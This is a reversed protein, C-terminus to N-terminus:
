SRELRKVKVFKGTEISEKAALCTYVSELGAWISADSKRKGKIIGIFNHALEMDGGFHSAGMDGKIVDSFPAHHRVYKIDHRYFDFSLTGKYGSIISGRAAADRRSFFVQTYVGHVGSAFEIIVSSSDENTGSKPSGCDVSFVCPHDGLNDDVNGNQKRQRPSELCKDFDKCQSCKLGKRRKGGFVRGFTGMAGVRTINSGMLFMMYDLDHTAKQLFLGQTIEYNRYDEEWYVTGYPVYNIGLIHEPTGMAGEDIFKKVMRTLPSVRLPFSVVVPCKSKLFARELAIAQKMNIAVPKELFLPIDYKSAEIAYPTHTNCRTGILLADPRCKSMLEDISDYFKVDKQDCEALKSRAYAENSDVIGSVQIDPAVKRLSDKILSSIRSGHGVVGLRM